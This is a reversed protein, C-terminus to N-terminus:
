ISVCNNTTVGKAFLVFSYLGSISFSNSESSLIECISTNHNTCNCKASYPELWDLVRIVSSYYALRKSEAESLSENGQTYYRDVAERIYRMRSNWKPPPRRDFNEVPKEVVVDLIYNRCM